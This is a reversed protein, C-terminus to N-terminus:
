WGEAFYIQDQTRWFELMESSEEMDEDDKDNKKISDDSKSVVKGLNIESQGSDTPNSIFVPELM